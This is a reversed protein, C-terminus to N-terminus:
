FIRIHNPECVPTIIMGHIVREAGRNQVPMEKDLLLTLLETQGLYVHTPVTGYVAIHNDKMALLAEFITM